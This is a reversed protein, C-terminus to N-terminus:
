PSAKQRVIYTYADEIGPATPRVGPIDPMADSVIRIKCVNDVLHIASVAWKDNVFQGMEAPIDAIWVKGEVLDIFNQINGQFRLEGNVLVLVGDAYTIFESLTNSSIIIIRERALQSFYHWFFLKEEPDLGVMPEDLILIDPDALLAQGIGLCRKLGVSWGGIKRDLFSTVGVCEAVEEVRSSYLNSPIGKLKAMYQLFGRGTMDPYYGYDQPLYGLRQKYDSLDQDIDKSNLMIRGFSPQLVGVLLRLLTTKGAGNPGILAFLGPTITVSVNHLVWTKAKFKKSVGALELTLM